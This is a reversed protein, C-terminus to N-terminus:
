TSKAGITWHASWGTRTVEDDSIWEILMFGTNSTVPSPIDSGSFSGLEITEEENCEITRCSKITVFDYGEETDFNDFRLTIFGVGPPGPAIIGSMIENTDYGLRAIFGASSDWFQRENNEFLLTPYPDGSM